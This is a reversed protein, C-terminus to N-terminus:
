GDNLEEDVQDLLLTVQYIDCLEYNGCYQCLVKSAHQITFLTEINEAKDIM